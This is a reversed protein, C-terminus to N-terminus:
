REERAIAGAVSMVFGVGAVILAFSQVTQLEEYEQQINKSILRAFKGSGTEYDQLESTTNAYLYVGITFIISGILLLQWNM